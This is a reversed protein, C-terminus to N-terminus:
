VGLFKMSAFSKHVFDLSIDKQKFVKLALEHVKDEYAGIRLFLSTSLTMCTAELYENSPKKYSSLMTKDIMIYVEGDLLADGDTFPLQKVQIKPRSYLKPYGISNDLKAVEEPKLKIAYGEVESKAHQIINAVSAKGWSPAMGTFVRGYGPLGCSISRGLFEQVTTGLLKSFSVPHNSGFCFILTGPLSNIYQMKYNASSM